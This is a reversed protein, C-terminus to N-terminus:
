LDPRKYLTKFLKKTCYDIKGSSAFYVGQKSCTPENEFWRETGFIDIAYWRAWGPAQSWDPAYPYSQLATIALELAESVEAATHEMADVLGRRWAQHASLIKHATEHTM